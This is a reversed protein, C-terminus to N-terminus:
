ELVCSTPFPLSLSSVAIFSSVFSVSAMSRVLNDVNIMSNSLTEKVDSKCLSHCFHDILGGFFSEEVAVTLKSLTRVVPGKVWVEGEVRSRRSRDVQGSREGGEM